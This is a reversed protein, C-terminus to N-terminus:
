ARCCRRSGTSVNERKGFTKCGRKCDSWLDDARWLSNGYSNAVCVTQIRWWCTGTAFSSHRNKGAFYDELWKIGKQLVLVDDKEVIDKPMTKDIYKQEGIWLGIINEEDSALFIDGLLSKYHTGYYM